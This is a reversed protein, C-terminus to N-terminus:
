GRKLRRADREARRKSKRRDWARRLGQTKLEAEPDFMLISNRFIWEGVSGRCGKEPWLSRESWIYNERREDSQVPQAMAQHSLRIMLQMINEEELVKDRATRIAAQAGEWRGNQMDRVMRQAEQEPNSLDLTAFSDEPFYAPVNTCGAYFPFSWCLWPDTLKETWVHPGEGNEIALNYKNPLLADAKDDVPTFGRGYLEIHEPILQTMAEVFRMRKRHFETYVKNSTVIAIKDQKAPIALTKFWDYGHPARQGSFDTGVWWYWCVARHWKKTTLPKDTTTLALGFQNLFRCSYPHIVDPEAAIFISRERPVRSKITYSARNFAILVDTDEPVTSGFTFRVNGIQSLGGPAQKLFSIQPIDTFVHTKIQQPM